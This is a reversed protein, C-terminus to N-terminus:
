TLFQFQIETSPLLFVLAKVTAQMQSDNAAAKRETKKLM